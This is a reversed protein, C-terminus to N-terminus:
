PLDVDGCHLVELLVSRSGQLGKRPATQQSSKKRKECARKETGIQHFMGGASKQGM